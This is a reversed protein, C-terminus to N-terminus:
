TVLDIVMGGAISILILVFYPITMDVVLCLLKTGDSIGASNGCDLNTRSSTIDTKFHDIFLTGVMFIMLATAIGLFAMGKKNKM